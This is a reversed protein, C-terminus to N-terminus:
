IVLSGGLIMGKYRNIRYIYLIISTIIISFVLVTINHYNFDPIIKYSINKVSYFLFWFLVFYLGIIRNKKHILIFLISFLLTVGHPILNLKDFTFKNYYYHSANYYEYIMSELSNSFSFFSSYIVLFGVVYEWLQAKTDNKPLYYFTVFMGVVLFNSYLTVISSLDNSKFLQYTIVYTLIQTLASFLSFTWIVKGINRNNKHIFVFQIAFISAMFNNVAPEINFLEKKM